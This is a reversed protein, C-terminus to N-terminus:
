VDLTNIILLHIMLNMNKKSALYEKLTNETIGIILPNYIFLNEYKKELNEITEEFKAYYESKLFQNYLDEIM